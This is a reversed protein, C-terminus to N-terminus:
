KTANYIASIEAASLARNYVRSEDIIGNFPTYTTLKGMILSASTIGISFTGALGTGVEQTDIYIRQKSGDYTAVVHAWQDLALKISTPNYYSRPIGDSKVLEFWISYDDRVHIGYGGSSITGKVIIGPYNNWASMRVWAMITVADTINLSPKNGCDVYDDVGDFNVAGGQKGVAWAMGTSNTNKATGNNNNGSSDEFGVTTNNAINGSTGGDFKWYGVLANEQTTLEEYTSGRGLVENPLLTLNAGLEYILSSKGGDQGSIGQKKNKDAEVKATLEWSGGTVYTYYYGSSTTNIPDVPLVGIPPGGPFALFNVPMWGSGDTKRYVSSSACKYQWGSPLAPLGLSGCTSSADDPISVYVKNALGFNSTGVAEYWGLVDNIQRLDSMRASDRTRKLYEVPNIVMVLIASIVAIVGIVMLLELLTFGASTKPFIRGRGGKFFSPFKRGEIFPPPSPNVPSQSPNLEGEKAFHCFQRRACRFNAIKSERERERQPLADRSYLINLKSLKLFNM